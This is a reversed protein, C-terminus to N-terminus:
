ATARLRCDPDLWAREVRVAISRQLLSISAVLWHESKHALVIGETGRLPGSRMVVRQGVPPFPHPNVELHSRTLAFVRDIEKPDVPEPTNGSGVINVVGPVM